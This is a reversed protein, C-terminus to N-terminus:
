GWLEAVLDGLVDANDPIALLAFSVVNPKGRAAALRAVHGNLVDQTVGDANVKTAVEAFTMPARTAPQRQASPEPPDVPALELGDIQEPSWNAALLQGRTFTQGGHLYKTDGTVAPRAPPEPTEAAPPAPPEPTDESGAFDNPELGLLEAEIQKVYDDDLGRKIRWSGDANKTQGRSHLREDWPLNRTDIEGGSAEPAEPSPAPAVVTPDGASSAATEPETATLAPSSVKPDPLEAGARQKNLFAIAEAIGTDTMEVSMSILLAM